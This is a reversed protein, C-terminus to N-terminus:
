ESHRSHSPHHRYTHCMVDSLAAYRAPRDERRILRALDIEGQQFFVSLPLAERDQALAEHRVMYMDQGHRFPWFREGGGKPVRVRAPRAVEAPANAHDLAATCKPCRRSASPM